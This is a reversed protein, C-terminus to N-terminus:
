ARHQARQGLAHKMPIPQPPLLHVLVYVRSGLPYNSALVNCILAIGGAYVRNRVLACAFALNNSLSNSLLLQLPRSEMVMDMSSLIQRQAASAHTLAKM